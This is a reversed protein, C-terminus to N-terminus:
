GLGRGLPSPAVHVIASSKIKSSQLLLCPFESGLLRFCFREKPLQQPITLKSVRLESSVMLKAVVDAVKVAVLGLQDDFAISFDM